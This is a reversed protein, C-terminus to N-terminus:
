AMKNTCAAGGQPVQEARRVLRAHHQWVRFVSSLHPWRGALQKLRSRLQWTLQLDQGVEPQQWQLMITRHRRLPFVEACLTRLEAEAQFPPLEATFLHQRALFAQRLMELEAGPRCARCLAELDIPPLAPTRDRFRCWVKLDILGLLPLHRAGARWSAFRMQPQAAVRHGAAQLTRTLLFDVRSTPGHPDVYTGQNSWTNLAHLGHTRLLNQFLPQDQAATRVKGKHMYTTGVLPPDQLLDTNFDGAVCLVHRSPLAQLVADLAHWVAARKEYVQKSESIKAPVYVCLLNLLRGQSDGRLPVQVHLIRGVRVERFRIAASDALQRNVLVAVGQGALPKQGSAIWSWGPLQYDSSGRWTEQVFIVDISAM